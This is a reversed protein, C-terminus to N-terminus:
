TPLGRERLLHGFLQEWRDAVADRTYSQATVAAAAGMSRRLAPDAIARQLARALGAISKPKVLLGNRGHDIVEGPGTPCDFAVVPLGCAMAELLVMPFGEFRSSLVYLDAAALVSPLDPTFGMLRVSDQLGLEAVLARLQAEHTGSGHIQLQWGPEAAAVTRWAKVLIDFGKQPTVRGAAVVVRGDGSRSPSPLGAPVANPVALVRAAPGLLERYAAADTETLTVVADLRPYRERYHGRLADGARTLNMHEQAVTVADDAAYRAVALNLGARTGVVVAEHQSRLYHVLAADSVLSFAGHRLDEPVVVRSTGRLVRGTAWLGASVPHRWAATLPVPRAGSLSRLRLAGSVPFPPEPRSQLVSAVEVDHGREALAGAMGLTTRVTGGPAFANMLVYRLRM